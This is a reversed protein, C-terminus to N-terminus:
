GLGSIKKASNEARAAPNHQHAEKQLHKDTQSKRRLSKKRLPHARFKDAEPPV